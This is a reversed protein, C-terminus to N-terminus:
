VDEDNSDGEEYNFSDMCRTCIAVVGYLYSDFVLFSHGLLICLLRKFQTM